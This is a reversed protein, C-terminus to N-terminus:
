TDINLDITRSAYLFYQCHFKYEYYLTYRDCFFVTANFYVNQRDLYAYYTSSYM